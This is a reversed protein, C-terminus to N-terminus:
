IALFPRACARGKKIPRALAQYGQRQVCPARLHFKNLHHPRDPDFRCEKRFRIKLGARRGIGGRGCVGNGTPAENLLIM